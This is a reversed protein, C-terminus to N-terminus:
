VRTNTLTYPDSSQQFFPSENLCRGHANVTIVFCCNGNGVIWKKMVPRFMNIDIFVKYLFLDIRSYHAYGVKQCCFKCIQESFAKWIPLEVFQHQNLLDNHNQSLARLM